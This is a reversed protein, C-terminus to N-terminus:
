SRTHKWDPHARKFRRRLRDAKSENVGNGALQSALSQAATILGLEPDEELMAKLQAVFPEDARELSKSKGPEAAVRSIEIATLDPTGPGFSIRNNELDLTFPRRADGLRVPSRTALPNGAPIGTVVLDGRTIAAKLAALIVRDIESMVVLFLHRVNDQTFKNGPSAKLQELPHGEKFSPATLFDPKLLLPRQFEPAKTLAPFSLAVGKDDVSVSWDAPVATTAHTVPDLKDNAKSRRMGIVVWGAITQGATTTIEPFLVNWFFFPATRLAFRPAARSPRPKKPTAM